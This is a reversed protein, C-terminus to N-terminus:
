SLVHLFMANFPMPCLAYCVTIEFGTHLLLDAFCHFLTTTRDGNFGPQEFRFCHWCRPTYKSVVLSKKIEV